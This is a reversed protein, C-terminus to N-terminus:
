RVLARNGGETSVTNRINGHNEPHLSGRNQKTELLVGRLTVNNSLRCCMKM